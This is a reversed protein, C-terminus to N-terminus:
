YSVGPKITPEGQTRRKYQGIRRYKLQWLQLYMNANFTAIQVEPKYFRIILAHVM